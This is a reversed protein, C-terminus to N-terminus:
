TPPSVSSWTFFCPHFSLTHDNKGDVLGNGILIAVDTNRAGLSSM